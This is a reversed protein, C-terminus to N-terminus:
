GNLRFAPADGNLLSKEYAENAVFFDQIANGVSKFLTIDNPSLRGHIRGAILDGIEGVVDKETIIGENIPHLLDGSQTLCAPADDLYTHAVGFVDPGVEQMDPRYSGVSNIHVGPKLQDLHFLPSTSPTATCIIDMDRLVSLDPNIQCAAGNASGVEQALAEARCAISDFLCVRYIRREAMIAELQTRGQAGCGFLALSGADQRALLRTAIGSAAGTRLATISNGDALSLIQGTNMDILLVIGKITPIDSDDNNLIQTLIKFSMRSYRSLFAPKFFVSITQDPTTMVVRPPVAEEKSSLVEFATGMLDIARHMSVHERIFASNLMRISGPTVAM